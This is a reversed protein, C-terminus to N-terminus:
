VGGMGAANSIDVGGTGKKGGQTDGLDSALSAGVGRCAVAFPLWCCLLWSMCHTHQMCGLACWGALLAAPQETETAKGLM